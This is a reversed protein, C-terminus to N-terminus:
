SLKAKLEEKLVYAKILSKIVEIEKNDLQQVKNFLSLLENDKIKDQAAQNQDGYILRDASTDLAEVMKKIVEATPSALNREYRSVHTAHIGVIEALQGQSINKATRITKLNEGFSTM